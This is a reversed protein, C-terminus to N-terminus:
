HSRLLTLARGILAFGPFIEPAAGADRGTPGRTEDGDVDVPLGHHPRLVPSVTLPRLVEDQHVSGPLGLWVM